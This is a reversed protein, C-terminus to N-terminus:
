LDGPWVKPSSITQNPAPHGDGGHLEFYWKHFDLGETCNGLAEPEFCTMDDACLGEYTEYDSSAISELLKMNLDLLDAETRRSQM